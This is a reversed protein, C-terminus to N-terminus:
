GRGHDPGKRAALTRLGAKANICNLDGGVRFNMARDLRDNFRAFDDEHGFGTLGLKRNLAISELEEVEICFDIAPKPHHGFRAMTEITM